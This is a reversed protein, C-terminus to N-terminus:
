GHAKAGARLCPHSFPTKAAYAQWESGLREALAVEERRARRYFSPLGRDAVGFADVHSLHDAIGCAAALLGSVDPPARRRVARATHAPTVRLQTVGSTSFGYMTGLARRAWLALSLGVLFLALGLAILPLALANPLVLPLPIWFRYGLCGMLAIALLGAGVQAWTPLAFWLSSGTPSARPQHCSALWSVVIVELFFASGIFVVSDTATQLATGLTM